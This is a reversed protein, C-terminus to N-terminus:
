IPLAMTTRAALLYKEMAIAAEDSLQIFIRRADHPDAVRRLLGRDTMAKIWRLATTPPVAAAICLSSVAVRVREIRAAALDLLMDWAPDAFLEPSFFKERMRRLRIVVRVETATIARDASAVPGGSDDIGDDGQTGSLGSRGLGEPLEVLTRAIRAIEDALRQLRLGEDSAVDFAASPVRRRGHTATALALHLDVSDRGIVIDADPCAHVVADLNLLSARVIVPGAAAIEADAVLLADAAEAASADGLDILLIDSSLSTPPEAFNRRAIVRGGAADVVRTLEDIEALTAAVITVSPNTLGPSSISMALM